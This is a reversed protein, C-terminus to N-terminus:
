LIRLTDETIKQMEFFKTVFQVLRKFRNNCKDLEPFFPTIGSLFDQFTM